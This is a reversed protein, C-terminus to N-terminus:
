VVRVDDVRDTVEMSVFRCGPIPEDSVSESTGADGCLLVSDPPRARDRTHGSRGM